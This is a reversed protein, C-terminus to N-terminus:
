TERNGQGGRRLRGSTRTSRCFGNIVFRAQARECRDTGNINVNMNELGVGRKLVHEFTQVQFQQIDQHHVICVGMAFLQLRLDVIRQREHPRATAM